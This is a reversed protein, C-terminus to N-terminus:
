ERGKPAKPAGAPPPGRRRPSMLETLVRRGNELTILVEERDSARVRAERAGARLRQEVAQRQRRSLPSLPDDARSLSSLDDALACLSEVIRPALSALLPMVERRVRVRLFRADENSPDEAFAVGARGLHRVVDARRARVIPRLVDGSRPPLVALGAPGSGRLLRMVVTEARDDATHGTALFEAGVRRQEARLAGYRAERARAMLNSGAEVRVAVAHFPVGEATALRRALELEAAAEPRLGHDVGCAYLRLGLEGRLRALVHLMASSDAGGSCACLVTAPAALGLEHAAVRKVITRLSPAHSGRM